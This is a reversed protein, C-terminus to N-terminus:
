SLLMARGRTSTNRRSSGGEYNVNSILNRLERHVRPKAVVISQQLGDGNVRTVGTSAEIECLLTMVRDEFGDYSAGLYEGFEKLKNLGWDSQPGKSSEPPQIDGTSNERTGVPDKEEIHVEVEPPSIALPEVWMADEDWGEEDSVVGEQEYKSLQLSSEIDLEGSETWEEASVGGLDTSFCKGVELCESSLAFFPNSSLPAMPISPVVLRRGDRLQLAWDSVESSAKIAM